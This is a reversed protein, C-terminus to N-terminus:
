LNFNVFTYFLLYYCITANMPDARANTLERPCEHARFTESAYYIFGNLFTVSFKM